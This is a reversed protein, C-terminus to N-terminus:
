RVHQRNTEFMRVRRRLPLQQSAFHMLPYARRHRLQADHPFSQGSATKPFRSTVQKADENSDCHENLRARSIWYARLDVPIHEFSAQLCHATM